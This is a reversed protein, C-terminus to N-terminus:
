ERILSLEAVVQDRKRKGFQVGFPHDQALPRSRLLGGDPSFAISALSNTHFAAHPAAM